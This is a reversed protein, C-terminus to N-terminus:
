AILAEFLFKQALLEKTRYTREIQSIMNFDNNVILIEHLIGKSKFLEIREKDGSLANILLTYMNKLSNPQSLAQSILNHDNLHVDVMTQGLFLEQQNFFDLQKM